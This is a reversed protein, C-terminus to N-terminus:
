GRSFGHAQEVKVEPRQGETKPADPVASLRGLFRNLINTGAVLDSHDHHGCNLCLFEDGNRNGADVLGCVPCTQSTYAPNESESPIGNHLISKYGVQFQFEFFPWQEAQRRNERREEVDAGKRFTKRNGRIGTLDEFVFMSDPHTRVLNSSIAHLADSTLRKERLSLAKARRTASRTGKRALERRKEQWHTKRTRVDDPLDVIGREGATSVVAALHYEGTDIAVVTEPRHEEVEVTVPIVIYFNRRKQDYTITSDCIKGSRMRDVHESWGTIPVDKMRGDITTIRVTLNEADISINRDLTHRAALSRRVPPRDFIKAKRKPNTENHFQKWLTRYTSVTERYVNIAHQAPLGFDERIREYFERHLKSRDTTKPGHNESLLFNMANRYADLTGLLSSRQEASLHLKFRCSTTYEMSEGNYLMTSFVQLM